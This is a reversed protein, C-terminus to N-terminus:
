PILKTSELTVREVNIQQATFIGNIGLVVVVLAVVVTRTPSALPIEIQEAMRQVLAVSKGRRALWALLDIPLSIGLFLVVLGMWFFAVWALPTIFLTIQNHILVEVVFVSGALLGLTVIIATKHKPLVARLKRYLYYHLGGYVLVLICIFFFIRLESM